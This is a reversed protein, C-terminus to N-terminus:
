DGCHEHLDRHVANAAEGRKEAFEGKAVDIPYKHTIEYAQKSDYHSLHATLYRKVINCDIMPGDKTSSYPFGPYVKHEWLTVGM